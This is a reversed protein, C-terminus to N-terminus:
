LVLPVRNRNTAALRVDDADGLSVYNRGAIKVLWVRGTHWLAILREGKRDRSGPLRRRVDAWPRLEDSGAEALAALIAADIQEDTTTDTTM